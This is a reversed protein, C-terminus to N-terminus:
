FQVKQGETLPQESDPLVVLDNPEVGGALVSVMDGTSAGVVVSKRRVLGKKTGTLQLAWVYRDKSEQTLPPVIAAVSLTTQLQAPLELVAEKTELSAPLHPPHLEIIIDNGSSPRRLIGTTKVPPTEKFRIGVRTGDPALFKADLPFVSLFQFSDPDGLNVVATDAKLMDGVEVFVDLVIGDATTEVTSAAVAGLQKRLPRAEKERKFAAQYGEYSQKALKYAAEMEARTAMPQGQKIVKTLMRTEEYKKKDLEYQAKWKDFPGSKRTAAEIEALRVRQPKLADERFSTDLKVLVQKNRVPKGVEVLIESVKGNVGSEVQSLGTVVIEGTLGVRLPVVETGAEVVEVRRLLMGSQHVWFAVGAGVIILIALIALWLAGKSGAGSPAAAAEGVVPVTERLSSHIGMKLVYGGIRVETDEELVAETAKQGNVLTGHASALDYLTTARGETILKCHHRSARPDDLLIDNDDARGVKVEGQPLPVLHRKGGPDFVTIFLPKKSGMMTPDDRWTSEADDAGQADQQNPVEGAM